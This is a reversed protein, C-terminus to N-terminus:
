HLCTWGRKLSAQRPLAYQYATVLECNSLLDSELARLLPTVLGRAAQLDPALDRSHVTRDMAARLSAVRQMELWGPITTDEIVRGRVVWTKYEFRQYRRNYRRKLKLKKNEHTAMKRPDMISPCGVAHDSYPTKRISQIRNLLYDGSHFMGREYFGNVTAVYSVYSMGSLRQCWRRKIRLPTVIIGKYADLGCSERFSGHTCCKGENFRLGFLPLHQRVAAQYCQPVIIDDGYVFVQKLVDRLRAKPHEHLISAVSLAWFCIAEVPFCVASGMPAFKNLTVIRGCPLKTATTRAANLAAFWTAPFLDRVLQLSVRDSADKMDLTVWSGPEKSGQLALSRNVEQNSFNVRGKTFPHKEITDVLVSLLGQQIWQYELPECSILRPGRSDKPVLVVKATGSDLEEFSALQDLEDCLHSLNYFFWKTYDFVASLSRYYRSFRPKENSKEGTAVAGPGHRPSFGEGLPDSLGLVYRVLQSSKYLITTGTPDSAYRLEDPLCRDTEVFSSLTKANDNENPPLELKNYAYLIQRLYVLAFGSADSRENGADDFIQVLLSGLFKPIKTGRSLKFGTVNLVSGTALALDVAKAMRPLVKTLFAIGERDVRSLITGWDRKFERYSYDSASVWDLLNAHLLGLYVQVEPSSNITAM